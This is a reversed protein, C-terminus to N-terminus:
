EKKNDKIEKIYNIMLNELCDNVLASSLAKKYNRKSKELKENFVIVSSETVNMKLYDSLTKIKNRLSMDNLNLHELVLNCSQKKGSKVKIFNDEKLIGLKKLKEELLVKLAKNLLEPEIDCSIKPHTKKQEKLKIKNEKKILKM